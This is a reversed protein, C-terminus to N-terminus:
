GFFQEFDDSPSLQSEVSPIRAQQIHGAIKIRQDPQDVVRDLFTENLPRVPVQYDNFFTGFLEQLPECLVAKRGDSAPQTRIVGLWESAM